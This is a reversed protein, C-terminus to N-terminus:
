DDSWGRVFKIDGAIGELDLLCDTCLLLSNSVFNWRCHDVIEGTRPSVLQLGCGFCLYDRSSGFRQMPDKNAPAWFRRLASASIIM